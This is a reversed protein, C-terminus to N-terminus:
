MRRHLNVCIGDSNCVNHKKQFFNKISLQSTARDQKKLRIAQAAHEFLQATKMDNNNLYYQITEFANHCYSWSIDRSVGHLMADDSEIEMESETDAEIALAISDLVEISEDVDSAIVIPDDEVGIWAEVINILDKQQVSDEYVISEEVAPIKCGM